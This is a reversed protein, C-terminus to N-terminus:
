YKMYGSSYIVYLIEGVGGGVGCVYLCHCYEMVCLVACEVKDSVCHAEISVTLVCEMVDSM